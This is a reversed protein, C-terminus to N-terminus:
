KQRAAEIRYHGAAHLEVAWRATEATPAANVATGNVLLKGDPSAVLVRAQLGAPVDVTTSATQLDVAIMGQPTPVRGKAWHLGLLDPRIEVQQFGPTLARVGLVNEQLWAAPGASWGHALSVFFGTQGDAQLSQHPDNKPWNLDYAEWFSTAGEDLMAGWYRRLWTLAQPRRNMRTLAELVYWNFYPSITQTQRDEAEISRLSNQWLASYNQASATGSLVAMASLQWRSAESAPIKEFRAHASALCLEAKAHYSAANQADGIADLLSAGDSLARGMEMATGLQAEEDYAFLQPAWDVFLWRHKRNVYSGDPELESALKGLLTLLEEHRAALQQRNGDRRYISAVTEIWLGSYSPIGNVHKGAPPQLKDLTLNLLRNDGFVDDIVATSADLDGVWWGRDRKPADWVGDLMCLHVTYASTQWIRNLKEDSSEFWGKYEVPYAIGELRIQRFAARQPNRFRLLVYRFGSKPGRAISSAPAFLANVGLYNRGSLAESESEGYSIELQADTAADVLLRGAVEKGFDLLVEAPAGEAAKVAFRKKPHPATLADLNEVARVDKSLLTAKAPLLSYTRLFPSLGMYGPWDYLGADLNWQFFEIKDELPGLSQVGPWQSDDFQPQQWNSAATVTSRWRTNSETLTTGQLGRGTSVIKAALVEGFAVQQVVPSDSAAIIGRGRVAEIALVNHGARLALRLDASYVHTNLPSSEDCHADLVLQGNLFIRAARPGAVYLTAKQPVTKVEFTTRFYHPEIKKQKDRYTFKDHDTRLAAADNATWVFEESLRHAAPETLQAANAASDLKPLQAQAHTAALLAAAFLTGALARNWPNAVPM